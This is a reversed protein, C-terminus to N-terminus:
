TRAIGIDRYVFGSRCGHRSNRGFADTDDPHGLRDVVVQGGGVPGEREVGRDGHDALRDVSPVRGRRRMM